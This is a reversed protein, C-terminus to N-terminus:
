RRPFPGGFIARGPRFGVVHVAMWKDPVIKGMDPVEIQIDYVINSIDLPCIFIALLCISIDLVLILHRSIM